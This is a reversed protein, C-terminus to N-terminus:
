SAGPAAVNGSGEPAHEPVRPLYVRFTSGVAVTTAATIDGGHRRTIARATVLGLGTGTGPKTTFYPEFLRSAVWPAMGTGTDSVVITAWV